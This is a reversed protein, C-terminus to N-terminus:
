AMGQVYWAVPVETCVFTMTITQAALTFFRADYFVGRYFVGLVQGAFIPTPATFVTGPVTGTTANTVLNFIQPTAPQVIQPASSLDITTPTIQEFQYIGTQVVNKNTDLVSIAYYTGSPSIQSNAWLPVSVILGTFPIDLYPSSVKALNGTGAIVPLTAGFGALWIRLWAPQTPSGITVGSYDLLTATLTILPTAPL